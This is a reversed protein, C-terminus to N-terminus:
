EPEMKKPTDVQVKFARVAEDFIRMLKHSPWKNINDMSKILLKLEAVNLELDIHVIAEQPLESTITAKMM